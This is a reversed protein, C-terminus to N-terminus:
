QKENKRGPIGSLGCYPRLQQDFASIFFNVELWGAALEHLSFERTTTYKGQISLWESLVACGHV